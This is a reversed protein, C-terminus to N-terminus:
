WETIVVVEWGWEKLWGEIYQKLNPSDPSAPGVYAVFPFEEGKVEYCNLRAWNIPDSFIPGIKEKDPVFGDKDPKYLCGILRNIDRKIIEVPDTRIGYKSYNLYEEYKM